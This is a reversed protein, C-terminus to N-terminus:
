AKVAPGVFGLAVPVSLPYNIGNNISVCAKNHKLLLPLKGMMQSKWLSCLIYWYCERSRDLPVPFPSFSHIYITIKVFAVSSSFILSHIVLLFVLRKFGYKDVHIMLWFAKSTKHTAQSRLLFFALIFTFISTKWVASGTTTQRWFCLLWFKGITKNNIHCPPNISCEAGAISFVFTLVATLPHLEQQQPSQLCKAPAFFSFLLTHNLESNDSLMHKHM